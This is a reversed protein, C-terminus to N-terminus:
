ECALEEGSRFAEWACVLRENPDTLDECLAAQESPDGDLRGLYFGDADIGSFFLGTRAGEADVHFTSWAGAFGGDISVGGTVPSQLFRLQCALAELQAEDLEIAALCADAESTALKDGRVEIAPCALPVEECATDFHGNTSALCGCVDGSSPGTSTEDLAGSTSTQGDSANGSRSESSESSSNEGTETGSAGGDLGGSTESGASEECGILSLCLCFPALARVVSLIM